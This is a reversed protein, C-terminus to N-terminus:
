TDCRNGYPPICTENSFELMLIAQIKELWEEASEARREAAEARKEAEIIKASAMESLRLAGDLEVLVMYAVREAETSKEQLITVEFNLNRIQTAYDLREQKIRALLLCADSHIKNRWIELNNLKIEAQAILELVFSPNVKAFLMPTALSSPGVQAHDGSATTFSSVPDSRFM